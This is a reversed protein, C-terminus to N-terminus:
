CNSIAFGALEALLGATEGKAKAAAAQLKEVGGWVIFIVHEAEYPERARLLDLLM